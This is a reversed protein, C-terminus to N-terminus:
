CINLLIWDEIVKAPKYSSPSFGGNEKVMDARYYIDIM